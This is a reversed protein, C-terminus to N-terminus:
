EIDQTASAEELMTALLQAFAQQGPPTSILTNKIEIMVNSNGRATGHLQLTHTVGDAASYPENLRVNYDSQRQAIETLAQAWRADTDNIIGIDVGRYEGRYSPTFSHITVIISEGRQDLLTSIARHFPYYIDDARQARAQTSLNENGPIKTTESLAPIADQASPPRNCDYLLRSQTQLILPADLHQSLARAVAEAGIDWAIHRDLAERPLGLNNYQEPIHNSAHECILTFKARGQPNIVQAVSNNNKDQM